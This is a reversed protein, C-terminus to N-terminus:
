FHGHKSKKLGGQGRDESIQTLGEPAGDQPHQSACSRLGAQGRDESSQLDRVGSEQNHRTEDGTTFLRFAHVARFPTPM